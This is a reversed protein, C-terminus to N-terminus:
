KTGSVSRPNWRIRPSAGAKRGICPWVSGPKRKLVKERGTVVAEDATEQRAQRRPGRGLPVDTIESGAFPVFGGSSLWVTEIVFLETYGEIALRPCWDEQPKRGVSWV